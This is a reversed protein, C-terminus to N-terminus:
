EGTWDWRLQLSQDVERKEIERRVLELSLDRRLECQASIEVDDVQVIIEKSPRDRLM